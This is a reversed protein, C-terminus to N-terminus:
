VGNGIVMLFDNMILINRQEDDRYFHCIKCLDSKERFPARAYKGGPTTSHLTHCSECTYFTRKVEKGGIKVTREELPMPLNHPKGELRAM